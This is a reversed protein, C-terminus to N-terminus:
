PSKSTSLKRLDDGIGEPLGLLRGRYIYDMTVGWQESIQFASEALLPKEGKIIKSYSSPDVGFSKAFEGKQLHLATRIAELRHGVGELDIKM